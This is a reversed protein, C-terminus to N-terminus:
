RWARGRIAEAKEITTVRSPAVGMREALQRTTMSLAERIAKTWGRSPMMIRDVRLPSLRRDLNKRALEAQKDSM